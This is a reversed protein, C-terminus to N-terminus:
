KLDKNKLIQRQLIDYDNEGTLKSWFLYLSLLGSDEHGTVMLRGDNSFDIYEVRRCPFTMIEEYTSTNYVHVEMSHGGALLFNGEPHYEVAELKKDLNFVALEKHDPYSFLKVQNAFGAIAFSEEDPHFRVSKTSRDQARFDFIVSWNDTVNWSKVFGHRPANPKQSDLRNGAAILKKSDKTFQLSNVTGGADLIIEKEWTITNWLVVEGKESGGGVYKGDPRWTIGDFAADHELLQILNGDLDFITVNYAEDGAAIYRGDPSFTVAEVEADMIKEWYLYGDAVRWLMLRSGFKSASVIYTGDPSFEAAEVSRLTPSYDAMRSWLLQVDPKDKKFITIEEQSFGSKIFTFLIVTITIALKEPNRM